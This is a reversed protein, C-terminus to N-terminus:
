GMAKHTSQLIDNLLWEKFIDKPFCGECKDVNKKLTVNLENIYQVINFSLTLLSLNETNTSM